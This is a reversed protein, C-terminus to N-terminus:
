NQRFRGHIWFWVVGCLPNPNLNLLDVVIFWLYKLSHLIDYSILRILELFIFRYGSYGDSPWDELAAGQYGKIRTGRSFATAPARPDSGCQASPSAQVMQLYDNSTLGDPLQGASSVWTHVQLTKGVNNNGVLMHIQCNVCSILIRQRFLM